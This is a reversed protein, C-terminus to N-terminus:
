QENNLIIKSIIIYIGACRILFFDTTKNFDLLPYKALIDNIDDEVRWDNLEKKVFDYNLTKIICARGAININSFGMYHLKEFIASLDWINFVDKITSPGPENM